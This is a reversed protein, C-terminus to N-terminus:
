HRARDEEFVITTTELNDAGPLNRFMDRIDWGQKVHDNLVGELDQDRVWSAVKYKPGYGVAEESM